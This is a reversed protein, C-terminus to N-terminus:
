SRGRAAEEVSALKERLEPIAKRAADRGAEIAGAIGHFTTSSMLALEPRIVFDADLIRHRFIEREMIDISQVIVDFVHRVPPLRDFLGVDVALVFDAGLSRTAHIPVRDIVGGDILLRQNIRHPVFIGPIAISARVADHVFGETLVVREGLELDTAVVALPIKCQDFTKRKTLIKILEHLKVGTVLGMKPFTVDMWRAIPLHTALQEMHHVPAGTAYLSAILAGMSSGAIAHLEFGAEELVQLVGVHAFGRTGGSGLAVGLKMKSVM